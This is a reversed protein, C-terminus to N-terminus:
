AELMELAREARKIARGSRARLRKGQDEVVVAEGVTAQAIRKVPVGDLPSPPVRPAAPARVAAILSELDFPKEVVGDAGRETATLAAQGDATFVIVRARRCPRERQAALFGWGDIGPMRVDLLVVDVPEADLAALGAEGDAAILVAYGEDRLVTAVIECVAPDDDVVLVREAPERHAEASGGAGSM